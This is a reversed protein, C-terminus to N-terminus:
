TGEIVFFHETFVKTKALSSDESVRLHQTWPPFWADIAEPDPFNTSQTNVVVTRAGRGLAKTYWYMVDHRILEEDRNWFHVAQPKAQMLVSSVYDSSLAYPSEGGEKWPWAPDMYVFAGEISTTEVFRQADVNEVVNGIKRVNPLQKQYYYYANRAFAIAFDIPPMAQLAVKTPSTKAFAFGRFSNGMLTRGLSALMWPSEKSAIALGDIFAATDKRYWKNFSSFQGEAPSITVLWHILSAMDWVISPGTFVTKAHCYSYFGFDNLSVPMDVDLRLRYPIGCAGATLDVYRTHPGMKSGATVLQHICQYHRDNYGQAGFYQASLGKGLHPSGTVYPIGGRTQSLFESETFM